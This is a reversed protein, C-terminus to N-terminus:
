RRTGTGATPPSTRPKARSSTSANRRLPSRLARTRWVAMPQLRHESRGPRNADKYGDGGVTLFWHENAIGIRDLTRSPAGMTSNDQTGGYVYYFPLSNDVSVRYFQPVPLNAMFRWAQGRDFTEYVGGDCGVLLHDTNDPDIWLAHDDVHRDERPMPRFTTGGDETVHLITDLVYVRDVNHPDCIIENYYQASTTDYASRKEWTEGRDNSRFFGGEGNAAEIIAYVVDPNAPSIDLGIRGM